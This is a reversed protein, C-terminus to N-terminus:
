KKMPPKGKGKPLSATIEAATKKFYALAAAGDVGKEAANKLWQQEVFAARERIVAMFEPSANHSIGGNKLIARKGANNQGDLARGVKMAAKEGSISEIAKKDEAPLGDWTKGNMFFAFSNTGLMGPFETVHKVYRAFRFALVTSNGNLLGDVTGKSILEFSKPTPATVVTAGLKDMIGKSPGASTRIKYGKLDELKTVPKGRSHLSYGATVYQTLLKMGKFEDAGSFFKQQTRWLAVSSGTASPTTFPIEAMLALKLRQRQYTNATQAVDAGGKAVLDWQRPPPALSAAPAFIKVRGNTVRPVNDMWPKFLAKYLASPKPVSVNVTITTEAQAAGLPVLVAMASAGVIASSIAKM